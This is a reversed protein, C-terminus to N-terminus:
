QRYTTLHDAPSYVKGSHSKFDFPNYIVRIPCGIIASDEELFLDIFLIKLPEKPINFRKTLYGVCSIEVSLSDGYWPANVFELNFKGDIDSSAGALIEGEETKLIINAFPIPLANPDKILGSIGQKMATMLVVEEVARQLNPTFQAQASGQIALALILLFSLTKAQSTM